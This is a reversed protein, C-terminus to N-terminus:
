KRGYIGFALLPPVRRGSRASDDCPLVHVKGLTSHGAGRFPRALVVIAPDGIADLDLDANEHQSASGQTTQCSSCGCRGFM